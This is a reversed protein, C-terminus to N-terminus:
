QTDSLISGSFGCPRSSQPHVRSLACRGAAASTLLNNPLFAEVDAYSPVRKNADVFSCVLSVAEGIATVFLRIYDRRYSEKGAGSSVNFWGLAQEVQLSVVVVFRFSAPDNWQLRHCPVNTAM